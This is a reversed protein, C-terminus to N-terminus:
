QRPRRLVSRATRDFHELVHDYPARQSTPREDSNRVFFIPCAAGLRKLVMLSGLEDWGPQQLNGNVARCFANVLVDILQLGSDRASNGFVRDEGLIRKFDLGGDAELMDMQAQLHPPAAGRDVYFRNFYRYNGGEMTAFPRELSQTQGMPLIVDTWLREYETPKIDKADIRWRFRGLASPFRQVYYTAAQEVVELVLYITLMCQVFLQRPLSLMTNEANRAWEIWDSSHNPTLAGTFQAAQRKQFAEVRDDDHRGMDICRVEFMADYQRVLAVVAAVQEESLRSGKLEGSPDRWGSVMSDFARLLSRHQCDPVILAGVASIRHDAKPRVFGGSEDMYIYM